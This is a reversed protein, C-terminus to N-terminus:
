LIMHVMLPINMKKSENEIARAIPHESNKEISALIQFIENDEKKPETIKPELPVDSTKELTNESQKEM